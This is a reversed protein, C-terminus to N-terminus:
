IGTLLLLRLSSPPPLLLLLLCAHSKECTKYCVEYESRVNLVNVGQARAELGNWGRLLEGKKNESLAEFEGKERGAGAGAVAGEGGGGGGRNNLRQAHDSSDLSFAQPKLSSALRTRDGGGSGNSGQKSGCSDGSDDESESESSESSYAGFVVDSEDSEGLNGNGDEGFDGKGGGAGGNNSESEKKKEGGGGGSDCGGGSDSDSGGSSGGTSRPAVGDSRADHTSQSGSGCSRPGSPAASIFDHWDAGFAGAGLITSPVSEKVDNEDQAGDNRSLRSSQASERTLKRPNVKINQLTLTDQCASQRSSSFVHAQTMISVENLEEMSLVGAQHLEIQKL